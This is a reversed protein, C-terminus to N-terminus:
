KEAQVVCFYQMDGAVPLRDYPNESWIAKAVITSTVNEFGANKLEQILYEEVMGKEIGMSKALEYSKSDKEIYGGAIILKGKPKLIRYLEKTVKDSEPINGFSAVSTIYDFSDDIVSMYRGDTALYFVKSDDTKKSKRTMALVRRDIDTCVVYFNKTEASLLKQLNRGRGTALDCVTGSLSNVLQTMFEDMKRIGQKTEESLRAYYEKFSDSQSANTSRDEPTEEKEIEEDTIKWLIEQTSSLNRSVVDYVGYKFSYELQCNKCKLDETLGCKCEPCMLISKIDM